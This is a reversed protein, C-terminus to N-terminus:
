RGREKAEYYANPPHENEFLPEKALCRRWWTRSADRVNGAELRHWKTLHFILVRKDVLEWVSSNDDANSGVYIRM